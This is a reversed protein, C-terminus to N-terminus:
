VHLKASRVLYHEESTLQKPLFTDTVINFTFTCTVDEEVYSHWFYQYMKYLILKGTDIKM